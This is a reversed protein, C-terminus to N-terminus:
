GGGGVWDANALNYRVRRPLTNPKTDIVLPVNQPYPQMKPIHSLRVHNLEPYAQKLKLFAEEIYPMDQPKPSVDPVFYSTHRRGRDIIDEKVAARMQEFFAPGSFYATAAANRASAEKFQQQVDMIAFGMYGDSDMFEKFKLAPRSKLRIHDLEPYEKQLELLANELHPTDRKKLVMDLEVAVRKESGHVFQEGIAAKAQELFKGSLYEKVHRERGSVTEVNKRM